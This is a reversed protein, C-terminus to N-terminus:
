QKQKLWQAGGPLTAVDVGMRQMQEFYSERSDSGSIQKKERASINSGQAFLQESSQYVTKLYNHNTLPKHDGQLRKERIREVTESLAHALVRNATYQALVEEALKLARSNSLNNKGRRFLGIYNVLHHACGSQLETMKALLQRAAEDEFIADLYFDSHCVPCRGIKM